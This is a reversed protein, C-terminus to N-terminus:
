MLINQKKDFIAITTVNKEKKLVVFINVKLIGVFCFSVILVHLYLYMLSYIVSM